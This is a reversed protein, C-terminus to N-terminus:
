RESGAGVTGGSAGVGGAAAIAPPADAGDRVGGAGRGSAADDRGGVRAEEGAAAAAPPDGAIDWEQRCLPCRPNDKAEVWRVICHLHFHHHCRGQAPPCDDGPHRCTPCPNDHSLQCIGCVSPLCWSWHGVPRYHSITVRALSMPHREEKGHTQQDIRACRPTNHVETKVM